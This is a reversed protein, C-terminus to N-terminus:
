VAFLSIDTRLEKSKIFAAATEDITQELPRFEYNLLNSILDNSYRFPFHAIALTESTILSKRRQIKSLIYESISIFKSFIPNLKRSPLNRSLSKAIMELLRKHSVNHGNVIYRKESNQLGIMQVIIESLDRVDIIGTDGLPYFSLGKWITNFISIPGEPWYGAGLVMSPCLIVANLGEAIGRWVEREGLQKSEAYYSYDDADIWETKESIEEGKIGWGLASVSSIHIFQKIENIVALDVLVKTNDINAMQMQNRDRKDFSVLGAIHIVIDTQSMIEALGFHDEFGSNIWKVKDHVNTLLDFSSTPRCLGTLDTFGEKVLNRIVYSGVFGTGGTILIRSNKNM